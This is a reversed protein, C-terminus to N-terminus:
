DFSAYFGSDKPTGDSADTTTIYVDGCGPPILAQDVTVAVATDPSEPTVTVNRPTTVVDNDYTGTLVSLCYTGSGPSVRKSSRVGGQTRQEDTTGDLAVHAFDPPGFIGSLSPLPRPAAAGPAGHPGRPLQGRKFDIARLSRNRVKSSTVAGQKIQAAGVSGRPLRTAAYAGGGLLIFLCVTSVVNAYTLRATLRQM